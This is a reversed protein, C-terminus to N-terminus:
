NLTSEFGSPYHKQFLEAHKGPSQCPKTRTKRFNRAHYAPCM